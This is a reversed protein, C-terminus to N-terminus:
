PKEEPVPAGDLAAVTACPHACWNNDPDTCEVCVLFDDAQSRSKGWVDIIKGPAHIARVREIAAVAADREAVVAECEGWPVTSGKVNSCLHCHAPGLDPVCDCKAHLHERADTAADPVTARSFGAALIADIIGTVDGIEHLEDWVHGPIAGLCWHLAERDDNLGGQVPVSTAAELADALRHVIVALETSCDGPACKRAEAILEENNTM